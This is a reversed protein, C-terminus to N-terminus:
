FLMFYAGMAPNFGLGSGGKAKALRKTFKATREAAAKARRDKEAHQEM